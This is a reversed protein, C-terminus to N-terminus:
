AVRLQALPEDVDNLLRQGGGGDLEDVGVGEARAAGTRGCVEADGGAAAGVSLRVEGTRGMGGSVDVRLIPHLHNASTVQQLHGAWMATGACIGPSLHM